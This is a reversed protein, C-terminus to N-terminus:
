RKDFDKLMDRFAPRNVTSLPLGLKLLCTAVSMTLKKATQSKFPYEAAFMGAINPPRPTESIPARGVFVCKPQVALQECHPTTLHNPEGARVKPTTIKTSTAAVSQSREPDKPRTAAGETPTDVEMDSDSLEVVVQHREPTVDTTSQSDASCSQAALSLSIKEM